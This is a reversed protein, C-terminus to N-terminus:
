WCSFNVTVNFRSCEGALDRYRREIQEIKGELTAISEANRNRARNLEELVNGGVAGIGSSSSGSASRRAETGLAGGKNRGNGPLLVTLANCLLSLHAAM